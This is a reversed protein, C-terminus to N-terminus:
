TLDMGIDLAPASHTLAGISIMDVGTEAISRVTQLTVSGSAELRVHPADADRIAVAERLQSESMNDLLVVDAGCTLVLRLQDLDDVEVEVFALRDVNARANAISQRLVDPLEKRSLHAIHNDKVLIADYLGMRHNVGGGCAVAYKELGRLGPLTKRLDYIKAKTGAVTQVFQNTLTAIGSSHTLFNLAVRELGLIPRLRGTLRAVVSGVDLEQGDDLVCHLEIAEDYADVLMPLLASGALCGPQRSRIVATAIKDAAVFYESTIDMAPSGLDEERARQILAELPKRDIYSELSPPKLCENRDRPIPARGVATRTLVDDRM